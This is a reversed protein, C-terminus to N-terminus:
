SWSMLEDRTIEGADEAKTWHILRDRYVEDCEEPRRPYPSLADLDAGTATWCSYAMLEAPMWPGYDKAVQAFGEPPWNVGPWHRAIHDPAEVAHRFCQHHPIRPAEGFLLPSVDPCMSLVALYRGVAIVTAAGMSAAGTNVIDLWVQGCLPPPPPLPDSIDLDGMAVAITLEDGGDERVRKGDSREAVGRGRPSGKSLCRWWPRGNWSDPHQPYGHWTKM